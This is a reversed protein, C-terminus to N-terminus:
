YMTNVPSNNQEERLIRIHKIRAETDLVNLSGLQVTSSASVGLVSINGVCIKPRHHITTQRVLPAPPLAASQKSFVPFDAFEVPVDGKKTIGEEQVAIALMKARISGVDGIEFISSYAVSNVYITDVYSTRKQM